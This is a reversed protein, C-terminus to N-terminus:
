VNFCIKVRGNFMVGSCGNFMWQIVPAQLTSTYRTIGFNHKIPVNSVHYMLLSLVRVRCHQFEASTSHCYMKDLMELVEQTSATDQGINLIGQLSHQQGDEASLGYRGSDLEPCVSCSVTHCYNNRM